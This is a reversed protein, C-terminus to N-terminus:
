LLSLSKDVSFWMPFSYRKGSVAKVGHDYDEARPPFMILGGHEPKYEVSLRPFFIEGGEEIDSLYLVATYDIHMGGDTHVDMTSGDDQRVLWFNCPYVTKNFMESVKDTAKSLIYEALPALDGLIDTNPHLDHVHYVMEKTGFQLTWRAGRPSAFFIPLNNDIYDIIKASDERSIFDSATYIEM